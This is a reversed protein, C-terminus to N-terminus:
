NSETNPTLPGQRKDAVAEQGPLQVRVADGGHVGALLFIDGLVLEIVSLRSCLRKDKM